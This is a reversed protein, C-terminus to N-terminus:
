KDPKEAVVWLTKYKNKGALAKIGACGFYIAAHLIRKVGTAVYYPDLGEELVAFGKSLLLRRLVAETFHSLHIEAMTGDLTIAPIKPLFCDIDNPVAIFLRGGPRLLSACKEVFTSPSPVHELVHIVTINDFSNAPLALSLLDGKILKLDYRDHALAVASGSVETGTVDTFHPRAHALFQGIGSGVDLLNGPVAWPLIKRLRRRWLAERPRIDNLWKDYKNPRSYFDAIAAATPRPSDFVFDCARCQMLCSKRDYVAIDGSGCATCQHLEETGPRAVPVNISYQANM